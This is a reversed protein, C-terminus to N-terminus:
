IREANQMLDITPYKVRKRKERTAQYSNQKIENIVPTM